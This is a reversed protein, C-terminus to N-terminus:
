DLKQNNMELAKKLADAKKKGVLIGPKSILGTARGKYTSSEAGLFLDAGLFDKLFPGVMIKPNATLVCSKGCSLFVRWTEPQLDGSYFNPLAARAM